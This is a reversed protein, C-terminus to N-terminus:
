SLKSHTHSIKNSVHWKREEHKKSFFMDLVGFFCQDPPKRGVEKEIKKLRDIPIRLQCGLQFWRYQEPALLKRLSRLQKKIVIIIFSPLIFEPCVMYPYIGPTHERPSDTASSM